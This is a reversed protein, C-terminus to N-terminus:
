KSLGDLFRQEGSTLKRWTEASSRLKATSTRRGPGTQHACCNKRFTHCPAILPCVTGASKEPCMSSRSSSSSRSTKLLTFSRFLGFFFVFGLRVRLRLEGMPTRRSRPNQGHCCCLGGTKSTYSFTHTPTHTHTHTRWHTSVTPVGQPSRRPWVSHRLRSLLTRSWSILRGWSGGGFEM